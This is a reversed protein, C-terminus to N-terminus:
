YPRPRVSVGRCRRALFCRSGKANFFVRPPVIPLALAKGSPVTATTEIRFNMVKMYTCFLRRAVQRRPSMQPATTACCRTPLVQGARGNCVWAGLPHAAVLAFLTERDTLRHLPNVYM